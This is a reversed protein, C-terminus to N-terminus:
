GEIDINFFTCEYILKIGKDMGPNSHCCASFTLGSREIRPWLTWIRRYDRSTGLWSDSVVEAFPGTDTGSTPPSWKVIQGFWRLHSAPIREIVPHSNKLVAIKYLLRREM